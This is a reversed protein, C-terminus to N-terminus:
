HYKKCDRAKNCVPVPLFILMRVCVIEFATRGIREFLYPLCRSDPTCLSSLSHCVASLSLVIIISIVSFRSVFCFRPHFPMILLNIRFPNDSFHLSFHFYNSIVPSHFDFYELSLLTPVSYIVPSPLYKTQEYSFRALM